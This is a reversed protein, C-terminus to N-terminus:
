QLHNLKSTTSAAANTGDRPTMSVVIFEREKNDFEEARLLMKDKELRFQVTAGVPLLVPHKEDSPRIRYIVRDSQVIYEQCLVEHTKKHAASKGNEDYGCGVSNMQLLQGSLYLKDKAAAGSVLLIAILVLRLKM